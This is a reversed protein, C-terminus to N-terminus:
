ADTSPIMLSRNHVTVFKPDKDIYLTFNIQVSFYGAFLYYQM